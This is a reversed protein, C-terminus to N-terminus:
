ANKQEQKEIEILYSDLEWKPHISHVMNIATNFMEAESAKRNKAVSKYAKSLYKLAYLCEYKSNDVLGEILIYTRICMLSHDQAFEKRLNIDVNKSIYEVADEKSSTVIKNYIKMALSRLYVKYSVHDKNSLVIDLIKDAEEYNKNDLLVYVKSMNLEATFDTVDTFTEIEVDKNGKDVENQVRLMENFAAKNRPNSVMKFGYGDTNTDFRIPLANYILFGFMIVAAILFFYARNLQEPLANKVNWISFLVFFAIGVIASLFNGLLLYCTPSSDKGKPLIKTEGTIGDYNKFRFKLKGDQKSFHLHLICISLISYKGVKAGIIHGLEVLVAFTVWGVIFAVACFLIYMWVSTFGSEEYHASLVTLIFVIIAAVYVMTLIITAFEGKKM